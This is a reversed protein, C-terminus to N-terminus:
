DQGPGTGPLQECLLKLNWDAVNAAEWDAYAPLVPVEALANAPVGRGVLDRALAEMDTIYTRMAAIDAAAGLPGHGPVIREIRLAQLHDLIALWAAPPQGIFPHFQVAVLDGAFLIGEAPLYLYADSESHGGGPCVLEATRSSGSLTLRDSFTITPPVLRISEVVELVSRAEALGYALGQRKAPDQEVQLREERGRIGAAVGEREEQPTGTRAIMLDRTTHTALIAAEPFVQNGSVHDNHWHSNVVYRVESRGTLAAAARRLDAAAEPVHFTDFILTQDGM